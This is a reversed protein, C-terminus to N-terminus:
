GIERELEAFLDGISTLRDKEEDLITRFAQRKLDEIRASDLHQGKPVASIIIDIM